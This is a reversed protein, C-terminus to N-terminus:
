LGFIREWIGPQPRARPDGVSHIERGCISCKISHGSANVASYLDKRRGACKKCIPKDQGDRCHNM